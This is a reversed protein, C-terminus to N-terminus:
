YIKKIQLYKWTIGRGTNMEKRHYFMNRQDNRM